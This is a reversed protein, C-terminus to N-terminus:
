QYTSPLCVTHSQRMHALKRSRACGEMADCSGVSVEWDSAGQLESVTACVTETLTLVACRKKCGRSELLGKLLCMDPAGQLEPVTACVALSLAGREESQGVLTNVGAM